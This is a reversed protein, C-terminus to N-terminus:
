KEKVWKVKGCECIFQFERPVRKMVETDVGNIIRSKGTGRLGGDVINGTPYFKHKHKTNLGLYPEYKLGM